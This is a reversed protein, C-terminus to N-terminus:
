PTTWLSPSPTVEFGSLTPCAVSVKGSNTEFALGHRAATTREPPSRAPRPASSSTPRCCGRRARSRRAAPDAAGPVRRGSRRRGRHTRGPHDPDPPLLRRRLHRRLGVVSVDDPVAVAASPRAPADCRHGAHRQPLRGRDRGVRRGRRRRGPRRRPDAPLARVAQDAHGREAAAAQLGHWRRAGSWSEAPGGAFVFSRHGYRRSTTSSRGPAPTSTPSWAASDRADGPQGARDPEARRCGAPRRRDAPLRQDRVRGRRARAPTGARAEATPNEATDGLVLTLGAAAAAREAGKIVGSFYPNTIDPVLLAITRTRGSELAQATPNPVYGLESPSRRARARPHPPQGAPAAHLGPVGDLDRCRRGGRRGRADTPPPRTPPAMHGRYPLFHCVSAMHGPAVGVNGPFCTVVGCRSRRDHCSFHGRHVCCGFM